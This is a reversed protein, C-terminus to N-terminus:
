FVNAVTIGPPIYGLVTYIIPLLDCENMKCNLCFNGLESNLILCVLLVRQRLSGIPKRCSESKIYFGM